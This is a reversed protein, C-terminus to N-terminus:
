IEVNNNLNFFAKLRCIIEPGKDEIIYHGGDPYYEYEANPFRQRWGNFFSDNFCWDRGGWLILIDKDRFKKLNKEIEKLQKYSEAGAKLPIDQVFRLTGIRNHWSNYPLLYGEKVERSLKKEVAMITAGAAFANLGRIALAGFGPIRCINIRFPIKTSLFAGTNLIVLKGLRQLNKIAWGSGIAGGWDHVILNVTETGDTIETLLEQLNEIHKHLTYNYHQPKDSFGMGIHDPVIVRFNSSFEPILKRYYFSWSPNGHLMLLIEKKHNDAASGSCEDIYHIKEGTKLRYYHSEFPYLEKFESSDRHM